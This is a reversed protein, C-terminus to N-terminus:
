AFQCLMKKRLYYARKQKRNCEGCVRRGLYNFTLNNGFLEHGKPCHTKRANIAPPSNGRLCNIKNTVAELHGPNVCGKNRCLHDITLGEPIKGNFLVYSFQHARIIRGNFRFHGYGKPNKFAIWEWCFQTFKVKKFFRIVPNDKVM